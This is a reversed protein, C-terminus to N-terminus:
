RTESAREESVFRRLGELDILNIRGYEAKVLGREELVHLARNIHQRAAGALYGLEEQSLEISSGTWPYLVPNFMEAIAAAVRQELTLLWAHEKAAILQGLRENIHTLIFRNFPISHDLLWHFTAVPLLAVKTDRLTVVDYRRVERKLVSGEGFWSGAPIGAFTVSKGSLSYVSLKVFGEMVGIWVDAPEGKRCVHVGTRLTRAFIADRAKRAHEPALQQLWPSADLFADLAPTAKVRGGRRICGGSGRRQNQGLAGSM